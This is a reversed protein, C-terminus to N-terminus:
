LRFLLVNVKKMSQRYEHSMVAGAKWGPPTFHFAWQLSKKNCFQHRMGEETPAALGPFCPPSSRCASGTRLRASRRWRKSQGREKPWWRPAKESDRRTQHKCPLSLGPIHACAAKIAFQSWRWNWPMLYANSPLKSFTSIRPGQCRMASLSVTESHKTKNILLYCSDQKQKILVHHVPPYWHVHHQLHSSTLAVSLENEEGRLTHPLWQYLM